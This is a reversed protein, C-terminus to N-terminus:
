LTPLHGRREHWLSLILPRGDRVRYYFWYGSKGLSYRRLDVIRGHPVATGIRPQATIAQVAKEIEENLLEPALERHNWWWQQAEAVQRAARKTLEVGSIM